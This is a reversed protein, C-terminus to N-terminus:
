RPPEPPTMEEALGVVANAAAVLAQAIVAFADHEHCIQLGSAHLHIVQDSSFLTTRSLRM